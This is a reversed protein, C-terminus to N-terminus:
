NKLLTSFIKGASLFGGEGHFFLSLQKPPKKDFRQPSFINPLGSFKLTVSIFM